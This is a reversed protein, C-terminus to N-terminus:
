PQDLHHHTRAFRDAIKQERKTLDSAVNFYIRGEGGKTAIAISPDIDEISYVTVQRVSNGCCDDAVDSKGIPAEAQVSTNAYQQYFSKEYTLGAACSCESQGDQGNSCGALLLSAFLAVVVRRRLQAIRVEM